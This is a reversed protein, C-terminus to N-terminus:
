VQDLSTVSIDEYKASTPVFLSLLLIGLKPSCQSTCKGALKQYLQDTIQELYTRTCSIQPKSIRSPSFEFKKLLVIGLKRRIRVAKRTQELFAEKPDCLRHKQRSHDSVKGTAATDAVLVSTETCPTYNATGNEEDTDVMRHHKEHPPEPHTKSGGATRQHILLNNSNTREM